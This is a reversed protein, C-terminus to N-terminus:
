IRKGMTEYRTDAPCSDVEASGTEILGAKTLDKSAYM